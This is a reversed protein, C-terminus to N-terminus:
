MPKSCKLTFPKFNPHLLSTPWKERGATCTGASRSPRDVPGSQRQWCLRLFSANTCFVMAKCCNSNRCGSTETVGQGSAKLSIITWCDWLSLFSPLICGYSRSTVLWPPELDLGPSSESKVFEPFQLLRCRVHKNLHKMTFQMHKLDLMLDLDFYRYLLYSYQNYNSALYGVTSQIWLNSLGDFPFADTDM